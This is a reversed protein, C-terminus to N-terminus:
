FWSIFHCTTTKHLEYGVAGLIHVQSAIGLDSEELRNVTAVRVERHLGNLIREVAIRAEAVLHRARDLAVAVQDVAHIELGRQRAHLELGAVARTGLEAPQVPDAVVQDVVNLELDTALADVLVVTVPQVDPILQGLLRALLGAVGLHNAVHGVQRIQDHLTALVAVVGASAALGVGRTLQEAARGLISQIHGQLEPEAAVRTQSQGQNGQLVVLHADIQLEVVQLVQAPVISGLVVVDVNHTVAHIRGVQHRRRQIHVVDVQVRILAALEGLDGVLVQDIHQLERARLGDVGAGVLDLQVEVVGTLLQHPNHLTVREDAAVVVHHVGPLALLREVVRVPPVAAGQLRTVGHGAHLAHRAAIGHHRRQDLQVAVVAERHALAAIEVLHLGVLVVGVHRGRTDVHVAERQGRLLVLGAAGAVQGTNIVGSQQQRHGVIRDARGGAGLDAHIGGVVVHQAHHRTHATQGVGILCM